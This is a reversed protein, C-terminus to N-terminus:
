IYTDEEGEEDGKGDQRGQRVSRMHTLQKMAWSLYRRSLPQVSVSEILMVLRMGRRNRSIRKAM